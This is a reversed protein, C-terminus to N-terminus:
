RGGRATTSRLCRNRGDAIVLRSCLVAQAIAVSTARADGNPPPFVLSVILGREGTWVSLEGGTSWVAQEGLGPVEEDGGEAAAVINQDTFTLSFSDPFAELGFQDTAGPPVVELYPCFVLGIAGATASSEDLEVEAGYAQGVVAASPCGSSEADAPAGTESADTSGPAGADSSVPGETGSTAPAATGDDYDDSGCGAFALVCATALTTAWSRRGISIIGMARDYVLRGLSRSAGRVRGAVM